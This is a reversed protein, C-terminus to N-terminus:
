SSRGSSMYTGKVTPWLSISFSKLFYESKGTAEFGIMLKTGVGTSSWEVNAARPAAEHATPSTGEGDPGNLHHPEVSFSSSKLAWLQSRV